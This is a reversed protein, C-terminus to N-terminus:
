SILISDKLILRKFEDNELFTFNVIDIKQEGFQEMFSYRIKSKSELSIRKETLILIDIDGGKKHDSARSGFLYVEAEPAISKIEHILHNKEASSIRM